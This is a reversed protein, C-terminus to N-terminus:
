KQVLLHLYDNIENWFKSPLIKQPPLRRLLVQDIGLEKGLGQALDDGQWLGRM